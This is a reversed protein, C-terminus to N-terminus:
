GAREIAAELARRAFIRALDLRYEASAHIDELAVVGEGARECAKKLLVPTPKQGNLAKETETARFAHNGVGTIGVAVNSLAGSGDLEVVAAAGCIAFGSAKQAMKLYASGNRGSRVPIQIERVIEAPELATTLMDVFFASAPVQREGKPGLAIITADLALIGAPYDAAPDAHSLSGGITGKNRVQVDGILAAAEALAQCGRTVADSTEIM